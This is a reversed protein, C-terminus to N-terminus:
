DLLKLILIFLFGANSCISSILNMRMLHDFDAAGPDKWVAAAWKTFYILVPLFFLLLLLYRTLELQLAFHLGLALFALSFLAGSFLFTAKIGLLRSISHVNDQKDQEHQYVQTLPYAGGILLTSAVCGTLSPNLSHHLHAAHYSLAYVLAGQCIIVLLFGGVPFRKIRTLRSSYLRSAMIYLLVGLAFWPTILFSLGIALLDMINVVTLLETTPQLPNRIGGVASTDRDSYGNFGNSAPYVLLHLIIGALLTSRWDTYVTQSVAFLFVPM